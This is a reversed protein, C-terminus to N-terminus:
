KRIKAKIFDLIRKRETRTMGLYLSCLVTSLTSLILVIIFRLFSPSFFYLVTIPIVLAFLTTILIRYVVEVIFVKISFGCLKRMMILRTANVAVYSIIFAYYASESPMGLKFFLWALLFASIGALSVWITYERITGTAMCATTMTIGIRDIIIAILGLQIFLAAHEPVADGLWLNLVFDTEAILPIAFLLMLFFSLKTGRCVLKFCEDHNGQAYNKIIQPNLAMTFNNVFQMVAGDVQTAVGRAANVVVGFYLNSLINIGQTNFIYTTNTLFSWGAFGIMEKTLEKDFCFRYRCEPFCIRCYLFYLLLLILAVFSLLLSYVILKDYTLFVLLFVICLKAVAEFISIYAFVSMREHAIIAANYPVAIVNICFSILACQFVWNAAVMRGPPIQMKTNLFWGGLPEALFLIILSIVVLTNVSTSFVTNLRGERGKGLEYTIFRSISASLAGSIVSFMAIVGGVANYIGYDEVGLTRLVVRSAYLNILLIIITRIYLLVTNKAIKKHDTIHEPM